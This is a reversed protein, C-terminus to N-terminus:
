RGDSVEKLGIGSAFDEPSVMRGASRMDDNWRRFLDTAGAREMAGEVTRYAASYDAAAQLMANTRAQADDGAAKLRGRLQYLLAEGIGRMQGAYRGMDRLQNDRSVSGSAIEGADRELRALRNVVQNYSDGREASNMAAVRDGEELARAGKAVAALGIGAAALGAATVTTTAPHKGLFKWLRDRRGTPDKSHWIRSVIYGPLTERSKSDAAALLKVPSGVVASVGRKFGEWSPLKLDPLALKGLM